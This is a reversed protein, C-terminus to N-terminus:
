GHSPRPRLVFPAVLLAAIALDLITALLELDEHGPQRAWLAYATFFEKVAFVAFAACVFQLTRNRSRIWARLAMGSLFAMALGVALVPIPHAM